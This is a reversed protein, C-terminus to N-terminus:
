AFFAYNFSVYVTPTTYQQLRLQHLTHQSDIFYVPVCKVTAAPVDANSGIPLKSVSLSRAQRELARLEAESSCNFLGRRM